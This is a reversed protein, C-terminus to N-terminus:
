GPDPGPPGTPRGDPAVEPDAMARAATDAVEGQREHRRIGLAMAVPIFAVLLPFYAQGPTSYGPPVLWGVLAVLNPVVALALGVLVVAMGSGRLTALPTRILTHGIAAVALVLYATSLLGAFGGFSHYFRPHYLLELVLCGLLVLWPGFLAAGFGRRRTVGKREPFWLFFRLLLLAWLVSGALQLHDRVGNWTGLNPGPLALALAVGMGLLTASHVSPVVFFAWMGCVLFSLGVVLAIVRRRLSGPPPERFVVDGHVRQGAREVVLRLAQGPERSLSLPWRSYMGLDEVPIGEVSIVSDGPQFGAQDLPGGPPVYLITYDPEFLADTYGGRHGFTGALGWAALVLVGVTLGVVPLTEIQQRSQKTAATM